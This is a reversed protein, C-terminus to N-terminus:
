EQEAELAFYDDSEQIEDCSCAEDADLDFGCTFCTRQKIWEQSDVDFRAGM